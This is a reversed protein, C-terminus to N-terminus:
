ERGGYGEKTLVVEFHMMLIQTINKWCKMQKPTQYNSLLYMKQAMM